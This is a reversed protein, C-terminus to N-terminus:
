YWSTLFFPVFMLLVYSALRFWKIVHPIEKRMKASLAGTVMALLLAPSIMTSLGFAIGTVGALPVPLTFCYGIMLLLPACPTMGYTFGAALMPATGSKEVPKECAQCGGCAKQKKLESFWQVILIVGIGSMAIQSFLRLHFSGIYGNDSIFSNSVIASITCLLSVSVVKGMFFSVFSLVGKKVGSSHSIVYTSLFTSVIPSCCTGCGLGVTVAMALAPLILSLNM